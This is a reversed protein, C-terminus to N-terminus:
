DEVFCRLSSKKYEHTSFFIRGSPLGAVQTLRQFSDYGEQWSCKHIMAYLNFPFNEALPRAYCHTVDADAALRRGYTDLVSSDVKWCCMGNATFGTARHRLLLAFRRLTGNAQWARLQPLDETRFPQAVRDIDEQYRRVIAQQELTPLIVPHLQTPARYETREDRDRTRPDFVVDIKYRTLAPFAQPAFDALPAMAAEYCDNRASLTYWLQPYDVYDASTIGDMKIGEPWGRTYAHTVGPQACVCEAAAALAKVDTVRIAFLSSRYGLQRADFVGGVRRVLGRERLQQVFALLQAETTALTEALAALPREVLPWPRQLAYLWDSQEPSFQM